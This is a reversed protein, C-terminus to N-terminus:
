RYIAVILVLFADGLSSHSSTPYFKCMDQIKKDTASFPELSTDVVDITQDVHTVPFIVSTYDLVNVFCTYTDYIFETPRVSAFPAIPSIVGDVPRGTGTENVTSNWYDMYRKQYERKSVNIAAIETAVKQPAEPSKCLAKVQPLV